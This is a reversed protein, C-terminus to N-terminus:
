RRKAWASRRWATVSRKFANERRADFPAAVGTDMTLDTNAANVIADVAMETIDGQVFLIKTPM